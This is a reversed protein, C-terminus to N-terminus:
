MDHSPAGAGSTYSSYEGPDLTGNGNIDAENFHARLQKLADVNKPIESRSLKGDHNTDLQEFPPAGTHAPAGPPAVAPPPSAPQPTDQAQVAGAMALGFLAPLIGIAAKGKMRMM